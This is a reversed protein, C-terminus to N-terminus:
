IFIPPLKKPPHPLHLFVSYQTDKEKQFKDYPLNCTGSPFEDNAKHNIMHFYKLVDSHKEM